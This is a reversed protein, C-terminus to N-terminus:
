YSGFPRLGQELNPDVQAFASACWTLLLVVFITSAYLRPKM